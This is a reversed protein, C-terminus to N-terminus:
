APDPTRMRRIVAPLENIEMKPVFADVSGERLDIM